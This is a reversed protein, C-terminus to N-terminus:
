EKQTQFVALIPYESSSTYCTAPLLFLSTSIMSYLCDCFPLSCSPVCAPQVPLTDFYYQIKNIWKAQFCYVALMFFWVLGFWGDRFIHSYQPTNNRTISARLCGKHWLAPLSWFSFGLIIMLLIGWLVFYSFMHFITISIGIHENLM